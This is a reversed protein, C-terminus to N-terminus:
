LLPDIEWDRTTGSGTNGTGCLNNFAFYILILVIQLSMFFGSSKDQSTASGGARIALNENVLFHFKEADLASQYSEKRKGNTRV